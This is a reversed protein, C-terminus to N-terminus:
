RCLEPQFHWCRRPCAPQAMLNTPRWRALPACSGPGPEEKEGPGPRGRGQLGSDAPAHTAGQVQLCALDGTATADGSERGGCRQSAGAAWSSFGKMMGSMGRQEPSASSIRQRWLRHSCLSRLPEDRDAPLTGTGDVGNPNHQPTTIPAAGCAAASPAAPAARKSIAPDDLSLHPVQHCADGMCPTAPGVGAPMAAAAAATTAGQLASSLASTVAAAAAKRRGPSACGERQRWLRHQRLRAPLAVCAATGTGPEASHPSSANRSNSAAHLTASDSEDIATARGNRGVSSPARGHRGAKTAAKLVSGLADAVTALRRREPSARSCRLQWLRHSRIRHLLTVSPAAAALRLSDSALASNANTVYRGRGCPSTTIGGAANDTALRGSSLTALGHAGAQAAASGFAAGLVGVIEAARRREPSASSERQLWLRHRRLRGLAESSIDSLPRASSLCVATIPPCTAQRHHCSPPKTISGSTASAASSMYANGLADAVEAARQRVPSASNERLRWLRHNRLRCLSRNTARQLQVNGTHVSGRACSRSVMNQALEEEAVGDAGRTAETLSIETTAKAASSLYASVIAKSVESARRQEPSAKSDRGRWLRHAKLRCLASSTAEHESINEMSQTPPSTTGRAVKSDCCITLVDSGLDQQLSGM